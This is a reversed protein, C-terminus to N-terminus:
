RMRRNWAPYLSHDVGLLELVRGVMFDDLEELSKPHQYYGPMVPLIDVGVKSLEYLNELHLTHLPTERPCLILQKKQKIVVDAARELLNGSNGARVRSITGM